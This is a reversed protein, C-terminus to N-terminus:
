VFNSVNPRSVRSAVKSLVAGFREALHLFQAKHIGSNSAKRNFNSSLPNIGAEM